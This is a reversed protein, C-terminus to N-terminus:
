KLAEKVFHRFAALAARVDERLQKNEDAAQRAFRELTERKWTSFDTRNRREPTSM